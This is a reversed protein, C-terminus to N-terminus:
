DFNFGPYCKFAPNWEGNEGCTSKAVKPAFNEDCKYDLETGSFYNEGSRVPNTISYSQTNDVASIDNCELFFILITIKEFKICVFKKLYKKLM